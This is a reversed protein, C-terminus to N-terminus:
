PITSVLWGSLSYITKEREIGLFATKVATATLLRDDIQLERYHRALKGQTEQLYSNFARLEPNKPKAEGKGVIWDKKSLFQKM